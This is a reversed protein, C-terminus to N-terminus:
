DRRRNEIGIERVASEVKDLDIDFPGLSQGHAAHAVHKPGLISGNDLEVAELARSRDRFKLIRPVHDFGEVSFRDPCRRQRVVDDSIRGTSRRVDGGGARPIGETLEAFWRLYTEVQQRVDFREVADARAARGIRTRGPEDGALNELAAALAAPDNPPVLVGSEPRLQEPIGGVATAVPSEVRLRRSCPQQSRTSARLTFTCIRPGIIPLSNM